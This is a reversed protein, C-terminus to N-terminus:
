VAQKLRQLQKKIAAEFDSEDFFCPFGTENWVLYGLEDDSADPFVERAIEVARSESMFGGAHMEAARLGDLVSNM